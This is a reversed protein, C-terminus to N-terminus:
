QGRTWRRDLPLVNSPFSPSLARLAAARISPCSRWVPPLSHRENRGGPARRRASAAGRALLRVWLFTLGYRRGIVIPTRTSLATGRESRPPNDGSRPSTSRREVWKLLLLGSAGLGCGLCAGPPLLPALGALVLLRLPSPVLCLVCGLGAGLLLGSLLRCCQEWSHKQM